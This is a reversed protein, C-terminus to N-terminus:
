RRRRTRIRTLLRRLLDRPMAWWAYMMLAPGALLGSLILGIPGDPIVPQAAVLLGWTLLGAVLTPLLAVDRLFVPPHASLVHRAHWALFVAGVAQAAATAVVVGILGLLPYLAFSLTINTVVAVLTYRLDLEPHGLSLAWLLLVAVALQFFQGVVLIAAVTGALEFSEPLWARVGYYSVPIAVAIWGAVLRVWVHQLRATGELSRSAGQRGVDQGIMAQMPSFANMPLSRLQQSFNVGQGYPGSQEAGLVRGAVFQDKQTLVVLLLASIQMKWAYRLFDLLEARTTFRIARLELYRMAYPVNILTVTVQQALLTWTVGYLGWGLEVTLILGGAYVVYSLITATATVGFRGHAFLISNFLNRLLLVGSLVTLTRLLFLSENWLRPGVRFFELLTPALLLIGTFIVLVLGTVIAVLTTMLRTRAARDGTGAYITFYRLASAGIGGDFNAIMVTLTSVLLFVGYRQPGLGSIIYPTLALNIGIQWLQATGQLGTGTALRHLRSPVREVTERSPAGSSPGEVNDAM